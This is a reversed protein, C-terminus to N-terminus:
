RYVDVRADASLIVRNGAVGVGPPRDFRDVSVINQVAKGGKDLLTVTVQFTGDPAPEFIGSVVHDKTLIPPLPMATPAGVPAKWRVALDKPSLGRLAYTGDAERSLLVAEDGEAELTRPDGLDTAERRRLIKGTRPDIAQVLLREQVGGSAARTVGVHLLAGGAARIGKTSVQPLPIKWRSAGDSLSFGELFRGESHLVLMDEGVHVVQATLGLPYPAPGSLPRGTELEYVRVRNPTVTIFAVEDRGAFVRSAPVGDFPQLWAEKGRLADLAVLRLDAESGPTGSIFCLFPGALGFGRMRTPSAYTWEAKGSIPDLRSVADEDAVVLGEELFASFRAPGGMPFTWVRAGKPDVARIAAGGPKAVQLLLLDKVAAPPTGGPQLPAAEPYEPDVVSFAPSLPPALSAPPSAGAPRLYSEGKLRAEVFDRVAVTAGDETPIRADPFLKAMRRLLSGASSWYGKAELARVLDAHAAPARLSSPFERLFARLGAVAEDLRGRRRDLAAAEALAEEAARSNPFRRFIERFRDPDGGRRAAELLGAAEAEFAAYGERGVTELIAAIAHRAVDFVPVGDLLEGASEAILRQFEAISGRDDRASLRARALELSAEARAVADGAHARAAEFRRVAEAARGGELDARGWALGVVYLRRRVARHLREEAPGAPKATREAARGLLELAADSQGSQLFRLAARYLLAPDDPHRELAARISREQDRRDFFVQLGDQTALVMAGDVVVLNGGEGSGGPWRRLSAADWTGDWAVRRVGDRCPVTIGDPALVGRGTGGLELGSPPVRPTGTALDLLEIREGGLVLVGDKVGYISRLGNGRPCEWIMRGTKAELAVVAPSDTPTAVVIGSDIVPPSNVWELRNKHVYVSRTPMVPLQRYKATWRIRGTRKDLAAVVGHNTGYVVADPGVSVPTGLSERTSNGFLNIETGGSAVFTSWLVRGTAADLCLVYHEFPDTNYKQHVAGVYLRGGEPTPGSAFTAGEELADARLRGGLKWLLRGTHADFAHLARKPFPFKVRVYGLQDEAGGSAAILNAFVRGDHVVPAYVVRNDFMVEGQPPPLRFQWLKEPTRAFLSWATLVLGNHAYVIGDAVAPFLPRFDPSSTMGMTRRIPIENEDQDLRPLGVTETWALRALEVGPEALATGAPGGGPMPWAPIHLVEAPPPAAAARRLQEELAEALVTEDGGVRVRLQALDGRAKAALERIADRRGARAHVAALRLLASARAPPPAMPRALLRELAEAAGADDGDDARLGAVLLLAEDASSSWPFRDALDELAAVDRARKAAQFGHEALPDARRRALAKGEEPWADIQARVFELVGVARSKDQPVVTSGFRQLAREYIELAESWRGQAALVPARDVLQDAEPCVRVHATNRQLPEVPRGEDQAPAAPAATSLAALLLARM